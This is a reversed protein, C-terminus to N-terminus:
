PVSCKGARAQVVHFLAAARLDDYVDQGLPVERGIHESLVTDPSEENYEQAMEYRALTLPLLTDRRAGMVADAVIEAPDPSGALKYAWRHACTSAKKLKAAVSGDDSPDGPRYDLEPPTLCIKENPLSCGALQFALLASM